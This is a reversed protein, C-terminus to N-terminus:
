SWWSPAYATITEQCETPILYWSKNHFM